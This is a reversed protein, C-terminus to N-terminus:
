PIAIPFMIPDFINLTNTTNPIGPNIPVSVILGDTLKISGINKPTVIKNNTVAYM